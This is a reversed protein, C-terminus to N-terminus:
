KKALAKMAEELRQIAPPIDFGTAELKAGSLTCNSRGETCLKNDLLYKMTVLEYEHTPDVIKKYLKLIQEGNVAGKNVVNYVGVHKNDVLHKVADVLDPIYTLSNDESIVKSYKTLKSILSRQSDTDDFPMRLRIILDRSWDLNMEGDVKSQSYFSPADTSATETIDKGSTWLCGSSLHVLKADHKQCAASIITLAAANVLHTTRQNHTTEVCWDINPRGTKGACNIVVDPKAEAIAEEVESYQLINAPCVKTDYAEAFKGALWGGRGLILVKM